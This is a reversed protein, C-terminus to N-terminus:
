SNVSKTQFHFNTIIAYIKKALPRINEYKNVDDFIVLVNGTSPQWQRWCYEVQDLLSLQDPPNLNLYKKAYAIITTGVNTNRANLWCIGGLYTKQQLHYLRYQLALETKGTGGMGTICTIFSGETNQLKEHLRTLEKERGVFKVVGSRPAPLKPPIPNQKLEKQFLSSNGLRRYLAPVLIDHRSLSSIAEVLAKDVEGHERLRPYFKESLSQATEITVKETMALVTPIGLERVLRQALGGLAMKEVTKASECACLFVFRPLKEINGLRQILNSTTIPAVQNDETAWYVVTEGQPILKGHSVIHLLTYTTQTLRDCLQDLTPMGLDSGVALVDTPIEGLATKLYNITQPADFPKLNYKNNLNQPNAVLILAKLDQQNIPPFARDTSSKLSISFCCRQNLSISNWDRPACLWHWYLTELQPDEITLSVRMGELSSSDIAQLYAKEIAGQFLAEGLCKGYLQSQLTLSNLENINEKSLNLTGQHHTTLQDSGRTLEAEVSCSEGKQERITIKFINM